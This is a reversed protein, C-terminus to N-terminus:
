RSGVDVDPGEGDDPESGVRDRRAEDVYSWGGLRPLLQQPTRLLM